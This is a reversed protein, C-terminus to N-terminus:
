AAKEARLQREIEALEAVADPDTSGDRCDSKDESRPDNPHWVSGWTREDGPGATIM